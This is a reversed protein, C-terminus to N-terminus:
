GWATIKKKTLSELPGASSPWVPLRPVGKQRNRNDGYFLTLLLHMILKSRAAEGGGPLCHGGGVVGAERM